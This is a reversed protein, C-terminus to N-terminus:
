HVIFPVFFFSPHIFTFCHRFPFFAFSSHIIKNCICIAFPMCDHPHPDYGLIQSSFKDWFMKETLLSWEVSAIICFLSTSYPPPLLGLSKAAGERISTGDKRSWNVGSKGRPKGRNFCPILKIWDTYCQNPGASKEIVENKHRMPMYFMTSRM